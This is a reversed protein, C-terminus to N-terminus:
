IIRIQSYSGKKAEYIDETAVKMSEQRHIM